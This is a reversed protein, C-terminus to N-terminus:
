ECKITAFQPCIYNMANVKPQKDSPLNIKSPDDAPPTSYCNSDVDSNINVLHM